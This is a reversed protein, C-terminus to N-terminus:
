DAVPVSFRFTTGEGPRSKVTMRCTEGNISHKEIFDKCLILGLGTGKEQRTGPNSFHAGISFLKRQEDESM